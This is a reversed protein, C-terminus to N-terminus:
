KQDKYKSISRDQPNCSQLWREYKLKLDNIWWDPIYFSNLPQQMGRKQIPVKYARFEIKSPSTPDAYVVVEDREDIYSKVNGDVRVKFGLDTLRKEAWSLQEPTRPRFLFSGDDLLKPTGNPASQYLTETRLRQAKIQQRMEEDAKDQAAFDRDWTKNALALAAHMVRCQRMNGWGQFHRRLGEPLTFGAEYAASSGEKCLPCYARPGFYSGENAPLPKTHEIIRETVQGAWGYTDERSQCLYFGKLFDQFPQDMLEVITHYAEYLKEEAKKLDAEFSIIIPPRNSNKM